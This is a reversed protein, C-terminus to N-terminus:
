SEAAQESLSKSCAVTLTGRFAQCCKRPAAGLRAPWNKRVLEPNGGIGGSTVIVAHAHLEFESSAVRSSTIGREVNSPELVEGRVGDVSGNTVTLESM